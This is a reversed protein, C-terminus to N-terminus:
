SGLNIHSRTVKVHPIRNKVSNKMSVMVSRLILPTDIRHVIKIMWERVGNLSDGM